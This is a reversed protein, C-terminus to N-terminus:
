RKLRYVCLKMKYYGLLQVRGYIQNLLQIYCLAIDNFCFLFYYEDTTNTTLIWYYAETEEQSLKNTLKVQRVAYPSRLANSVKRQTRRPVDMKEMM